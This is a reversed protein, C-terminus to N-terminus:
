ESSVSARRRATEGLPRRTACPRPSEAQTRLRQPEVVNLRALGACERQRRRRRDTSGTGRVGFVLGDTATSRSRRRPSPEVGRPPGPKASPVQLTARVLQDRGRDDVESSRPSSRRRASVPSAPRGSTRGLATLEACPQLHAIEDGPRRSWEGGNSVRPTTMGGARGALDRSHRTRGADEDPAERRIGGVEEHPMFAGHVPDGDRGVPAPDCRAGLVVRQAEPRHRVQRLGRKVRQGVVLEHRLEPGQRIEADHPIGTVRLSSARFRGTGRSSPRAPTTLVEPRGDDCAIAASIAQSAAVGPGQRTGVHYVTRAAPALTAADM